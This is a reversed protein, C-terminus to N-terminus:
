KGPATSPKSLWRRIAAPAGTDRVAFMQGKPEWWGYLCLAKAGHSALWNFQKLCTQETDAGPMIEMEVAGWKRRGAKHIDSVVKDPNMWGHTMTYGPRSYPNVAASVPLLRGDAAVYFEEGLSM